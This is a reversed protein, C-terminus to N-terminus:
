DEFSIHLCELLMAAGVQYVRSLAKLIKIEGVELESLKVAFDRLKKWCIKLYMKQINEHVVVKM